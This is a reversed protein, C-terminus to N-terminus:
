SQKKFRRSALGIMGLAFIALTSPEPVNVSPPLEEGEFEFYFGNFKFDSMSAFISIDIMGDHELDNLAFESFDYDFLIIDNIFYKSNYVDYHNFGLADEYDFPKETNTNERYRGDHIINSSGIGVVAQEVDENTYNREGAISSYYRWSGWTGALDDAESPAVQSQLSYNDDDSFYLILSASTLELNLSSDLYSNIDLTFLRTDGADLYRDSADNSNYINDSVLGANVVCSVSLIISVLIAKLFKFKM